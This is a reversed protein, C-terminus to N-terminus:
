SFLHPFMRQMFATNSESFFSCSFNIIFTIIPVRRMFDGVFIGTIHPYVASVDGHSMFLLYLDLFPLELM